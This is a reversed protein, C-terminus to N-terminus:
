LVVFKLSDGAADKLQRTEALQVEGVVFKQLDWVNRLPGGTESYEVKWVVLEGAHREIDNGSIDLAQVDAVVHELRNGQTNTGESGEM